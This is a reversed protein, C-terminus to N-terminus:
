KEARSDESQVGVIKVENRRFLHFRWLPKTAAYGVILMVVHRPTKEQMRLIQVMAQLDVSSPKPMSFPHTHWVGVFRTSGGSKNAHFQCRRETGEFGCVFREPSKVSDPPAGTAADICITSLTDDIEGLLLGGTEDRANGTRANLAIESQIAKRAKPSLLVRYGHRVESEAAFKGLDVVRSGIEQSCKYGNPMTSFLATASDESSNALAQAGFNFFSSAFFALDAASGVFTPESCGPEPQFGPDRQEQPWFEDAFEALLPSNSAAMKAQRIMDFPGLRSKGMKLTAIGHSARANITCRLISPTQELKEFQLQLAAAVRRSATADIILDFDNLELSEPWGKTLNAFVHDIDSKPNITSLRVSLASQKSFGVQRSEFQQRVLIGPNVASNDVLRIKAAGARVFYEGIHSGIAGCGLLAVSKGFFWSANTDHDRRYTVESRNDFVRCWETRANAAWEIVKARGLDVDEGSHEGVIDQLAAVYEPAIRWATLHQRLPEGAARRRMPAGLVFYLADGDKQYIAFLRLISFLFRFPIGRDELADILKFVTDPYEMPMPQNLLLAAAFRDEDPLKDPIETWDTLDFCYKNRSKLKAAGLWFSADDAVPPPNVEIVFKKDSTTYAIPPHLPADEPDLQNLAADRLWQDLRTIFGFMGDSAVWEVDTALYLCLHRGWQVHSRDGFRTHVFDASPPEIPFRAPVYIRFSERARFEFGGEAREYGATDLSLRVSLSGGESSPRTLEVIEVAGDSASAIDTLQEEALTQGKTLFESAM